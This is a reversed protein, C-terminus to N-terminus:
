NSFGLRLDLVPPAITVDQIEATQISNSLTVVSSEFQLFASQTAFAAVPRVPTPTPPAVAQTPSPLVAVPKNTQTAFLISGTVLVIIVGIILFIPRQSAPAVAEPTRVPGYVPPQSSQPLIEPTPDILM